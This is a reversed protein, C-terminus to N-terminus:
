LATLSPNSGGRGAVGSTPCVETSLSRRQSWGAKCAQNLAQIETDRM